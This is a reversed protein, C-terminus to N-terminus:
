AKEILSRIDSLSLRNTLSVTMAGTVADYLSQNKNTAKWLADTDFKDAQIMARLRPEYKHQFPLKGVIMTFLLVGFAWIDASPGLPPPSTELLEPAAYPLSGIHSHPLNPDENTHKNFEFPQPTFVIQGAISGTSTSTFLINLQTDDHTLNKNTLNKQLSKESTSLIKNGSFSRPISPRRRIRQNESPPGIVIDDDSEIKKMFRLSMGFDCILIKTGRANKDILCNELKVDGHVIGRTHMYSLGDIIQLAYRKTLSLRSEISIEQPGDYLGWASVLDFLTGGSIRETLCFIASEAEKMSVLPLINPHKLEAWIDTERKFFQKVDDSKTRIIKIARTRGDTVSKCERILGWAGHGIIKDIKHGLIVSGEETTKSSRESFSSLFQLAPSSKPKKKLTRKVVRSITDSDAYTTLDLMIKKRMSFPLDSFGQPLKSEVIDEATKLVSDYDSAKPVAHTPVSVPSVQAHSTGLHTQTLSTSSYPFSDITSSDFSNDTSFSEDADRAWKSVVSSFDFDPVYEDMMDSAQRRLEQRDQREQRVRHTSFSRLPRLELSAGVRPSSPNRLRHPRYRIDDYMRRGNETDFNMTENESYIRTLKSRSKSEQVYQLQNYPTDKAKRLKLAPSDTLIQPLQGRVSPSVARPTSFQLFGSESDSNDASTAYKRSQLEDIQALSRRSHLSTQEPVLESSVSSECSDDDRSRRKGHSGLSTQSM